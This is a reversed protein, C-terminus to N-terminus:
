GGTHPYEQGFLLLVLGDSRLAFALRPCESSHRVSDASSLGVRVVCVVAPIYICLSYGYLSLLKLLGLPMGFYRGLAWLVLPLGVYYLYVM